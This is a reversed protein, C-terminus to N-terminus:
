RDLISGSGALLCHTMKAAEDILPSFIRAWYLFKAGESMVHLM